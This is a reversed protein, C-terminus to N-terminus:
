SYDVGGFHNSSEVLKNYGMINFFSVVLLIIIGVIYGSYTFGYPLFLIGM